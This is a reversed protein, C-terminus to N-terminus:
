VLPHAVVAFVNGGEEDSGKVPTVSRRELVGDLVTLTSYISSGLVHDARTESWVDCGKTHREDHNSVTM